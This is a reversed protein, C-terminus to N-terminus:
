KDGRVSALSREIAARTLDRAIFVLESRRRADPWFPLPEPEYVTYQVGQIVLPRDHGAAAIYGKVRLISDGRSALLLELWEIFAPLSIPEDRTIVFTGIDSHHHHADNPLSELGRAPATEDPRDFLADPPPLNGPSSTICSAAANVEAVRAALARGAPEDVLDTKTLLVRDAAALQRGAERYRALTEPGNVADVATLVNGLRYAKSVRKETLIAQMMPLPDALGTTEVVVRSFSPIEECDAARKLDLLTSLLDDRVTCCLCGSSLLVVDEKLEQVLLHDLGVEGFENIIVATDRLSPSQLFHRLLTTKGSGLFGTLVHVPLRRQQPHAEM